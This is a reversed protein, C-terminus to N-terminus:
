SSNTSSNLQEDKKKAINKYVTTSVCQSTLIFYQNIPSLYKTIEEKNELYIQKFIVLFAERRENIDDSLNELVNVGQTKHKVSHGVTELIKICCLNMNFLGVAMMEDVNSVDTFNTNIKENTYNAIKKIIDAKNMKKLVSESVEVKGQTNQLNMFEEILQVKTMKKKEKIVEEAVEQTEHQKNIEELLKAEIEEKETDLLFNREEIIEEM